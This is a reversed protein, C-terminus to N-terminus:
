AEEGAEEATTTTTTTTAADAEGTEAPAVAEEAAPAPGGIGKPNPGYQNDGPTSDSVHWIFLPIIGIGTLALLLLWGSKGVDHLRRVSVALGPIIVALLYISGIIGSQTATGDFNVGGTEYTTGILLDVYSIVTIIISNILAYWWYAARQAGGSFNAYNEKLVKLYWNM